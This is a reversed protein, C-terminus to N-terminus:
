KDTNTTNARKTGRAEASVVGEKETQAKKAAEEEKKKREEERKKFFADAELRNMHSVKIKAGPKNANRPLGTPHPYVPPAVNPNPPTNPGVIIGDIVM